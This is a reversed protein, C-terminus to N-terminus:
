VLNRRYDLVYNKIFLTPDKEYEDLDIGIEKQIVSKFHQNEQEDGFRCFNYLSEVLFFVSEELTSEEYDNMTDKIMVNFSQVQEEILTENISM